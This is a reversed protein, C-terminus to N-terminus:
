RDNGRGGLAHEDDDEVAVWDERTLGLEAISMAAERRLLNQFESKWLRATSPSVGVESALHTIVAEDNRALRVAFVFRRRDGCAWGLCFGVAAAGLGADAGFASRPRSALRREDLPENM